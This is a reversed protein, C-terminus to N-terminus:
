FGHGAKRDGCLGLNEVEPMEGGPLEARQQLAFGLDPALAETPVVVAGGLEEEFVEFGADEGAEDGEVAATDAAVREADELAVLGDNAVGEGDAVREHAIDLDSAEQQGVHQLHEAVGGMDFADLSLHQEEVGAIEGSGVGGGAEVDALAEEQLAIEAAAAAGGLEGGLGLAQRGFEGEGGPRRLVVLGGAFQDVGGVGAVGVGEDVVLVAGQVARQAEQVVDDAEGAAADELRLEGPHQAVPAGAGHGAHDEARADVGVNAVDGLEADGVGPTVFADAGEEQLLAGGAEDACAEDGDGEGDGLGVARRQVEVLLEAEDAAVTEVGHDEVLGVGV